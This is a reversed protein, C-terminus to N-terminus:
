FYDESFAEISSSSLGNLLKENLFLAKPPDFFDFKFAILIDLFLFGIL